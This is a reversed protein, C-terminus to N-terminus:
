QLSIWSIAVGHKEGYKEEPIGPGISIQISEVRSIDFKSKKSPEFWYPLFSPYPRPLLVTRVAELDKLTVSYSGWLPDVNIIGGYATGDQMVLAIQLKCAKGHMANGHIVLSKKSGISKLRHAPASRGAPKTRGTSGTRGNAATRAEIKDGCWSRVTYDHEGASLNPVTLHMVSKGPIPSPYCDIKHRRHMKTLEKWDTEADFLLVPHEGDVIRISYPESDDLHRDDAYIRRDLLHVDENGSPWLIYKDETKQVSIHYRLIGPNDTYSSPITATYNYAGTKEMPIAEGGGTGLIIIEVNSPEFPTIIEATLELTQGAGRNPSGAFAEVPPDHLIYHDGLEREPAHYEGLVINNWADYKDWSSNVGNKTLLYTGPTVTFSVGDARAYVENGENLGTVAYAEGLDPLRIIIPHEKWLVVAAERETHPVFFPDRVWAADPMVELRWVGDELKDLFYAGTGQYKVVPSSGTGAIQELAAPAPPQSSTNNTHLFKKETVMEALDNEYSVRFVDFTNNDPYRGYSKGLPMRHFVESAIMMGIAKKPTYALNLFHTRYEINCYAAHMPDYAFHAAFQFGAERFGRAMAPYMSASAGIDSPSFEYAFKPRKPDNLKEAFPIAYRDVNPLMNGKQDHNATLGSPYWQFSGGDAKSELISDIFVASTTMNYMIPKKCGTARIADYMRDIYPVVLDPRKWHGPENVIEFAIIDPDDKYAIGTYPNIHSVFRALYNEQAPYAATDTLCGARYGYKYTFGSKGGSLYMPTIYAKIGRKKLHYLLYDFLQFHRNYVLNGLTDSIYSEWVHIRYGDLGMRAMHYVDEEIAKEYDAGIPERADWYAFPISYNTGFACLEEDTGGWRMIGAEDIYADNIYALDRVQPGDQGQASLYGGPGCLIAMGPVM